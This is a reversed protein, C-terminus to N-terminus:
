KVAYKEYKNYDRYLRNSLDNLDLKGFRFDGQWENYSNTRDEEIDSAIFKKDQEDNFSGYGHKTVYPRTVYHLSVDNFGSLSQIADFIVTNSPTWREGMSM